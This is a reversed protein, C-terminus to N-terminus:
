LLVFILLYKKVQSKIYLERSLFIKKPFSPEESIKRCKWRYKATWLVSNILVGEYISLLIIAYSFSM